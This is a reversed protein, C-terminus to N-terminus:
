GGPVVDDHGAKSIVFCRRLQGRLGPKRAEVAIATPESGPRVALARGHELTADTGSPPSWERLETSQDCFRSPAVPVFETAKRSEAARRRLCLLPARSRYPLRPASYVRRGSLGAPNLERPGWQSGAGRSSRSVHARRAAGGSIRVPGITPRMARFWSMQTRSRPGSSSTEIPMKSLQMTSSSPTRWFGWRGVRAYSTQADTRFVSPRPEVGLPPAFSEIPDTAFAPNCRDRLGYSTPEIGVRGVVCCMEPLALWRTIAVTEFVSSRHAKLTRSGRRGGCSDPHLAAAARATRSRSTAPEIGAEGVSRSLGDQVPALHGGALRTAWSM